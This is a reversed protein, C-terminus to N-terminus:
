TTICKFASLKHLDSTYEFLQGKTVLDITELHDKFILWVKQIDVKLKGILKIKKVILFNISSFLFMNYRAKQYKCIKERIKPKSESVLTKSQSTFVPLIWSKCIQNISSYMSM